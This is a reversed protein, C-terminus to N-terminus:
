ALRSPQLLHCCSHVCWGCRLMGQAHLIAHECTPIFPQHSLHNSVGCLCNSGCHHTQTQRLGRIAAQADPQSSTLATQPQPHRQLDNSKVRLANRSMGVVAGHM